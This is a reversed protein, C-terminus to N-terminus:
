EKEKLDATEDVFFMLCTMGSDLAMQKKGVLINQPISEPMASGDFMEPGGINFVVQDDTVIPLLNGCLVNLLEKLADEIKVGEPPEEGPELGLMNAALVEMMDGTIAVFLKGSFPGTFDVCAIHAWSVPANDALEDEPMVLMFALEGFTEEAVHALTDNFIQKPNKQNM